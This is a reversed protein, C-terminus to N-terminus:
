DLPLYYLHILNLALIYLFISLSAFPLTKKYENKIVSLISYTCYYVLGIFLLIQIAIEFVVYFSLEGNYQILNNITKIANIFVFLGLLLGFISIIIKLIKNNKNMFIGKEFDINYYWM